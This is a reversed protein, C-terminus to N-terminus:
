RFRVDKTIEFGVGVKTTSPISKADFDSRVAQNMNSDCSCVTRRLFTHIRSNIAHVKFRWQFGFLNVIHLLGPTGHSYLKKFTSGLDPTVSAAAGIFVWVEIRLTPVVKNCACRM